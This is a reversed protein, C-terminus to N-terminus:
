GVVANTLRSLIIVTHSRKMTITWSTVQKRANGSLEKVKQRKPQLYKWYHLKRDLIVGFYYVEEAYTMQRNRTSMNVLKKTKYKRVFVM